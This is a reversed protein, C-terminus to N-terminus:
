STEPLTKHLFDTMDNISSKAAPLFEMQSFAHPMGRYVQYDFKKGAALLQAKLNEADEILEDESGIGIYAPPLKAAQLIPSVRPDDVLHRQGALYADFLLETILDPEEGSRFDYVGYLLGVGHIKPAAVTNVLEIATAAALNGGASDGALVIRQNDGGWQGVMEAAAYVAHICDNLGAPFPSEPALRYDVSLTLFGREALRHTLKRHTAPSGWIWAGGHFYILVPYPGEGKPVTVDFTLKVDDIERFPVNQHFAGVEPLDDNLLGAFEDLMKRLYRVSLHEIGSPAAFGSLKLLSDLRM